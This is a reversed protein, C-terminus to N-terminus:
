VLRRYVDMSFEAIESDPLVGSLVDRLADML